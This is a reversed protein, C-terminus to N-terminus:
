SQQRLKALAATERAVVQDATIGLKAATQQPDLPLGGELGYRLTLLKADEEPLASLLDTIRQRMQFYATDEVAQEEEQPMEEPEPKLARNLIRVNEVTKAVAVTEEVSMHLAQAMEEPTPNRGLESLLREDVSRYDEAAARLKQGVGGDLASMLVAKEMYFRIWRDRFTEFRLGDGNFIETAYWLGMSGEQILDLLLVGKGTYEGALEVVRSLSLEVLQTRLAEPDEGTSNARSLADAVCCIDGCVPIAALEELYLRLPDTQELQEPRLGAKALQQELQLRKAAEGGPAAFDFDAFDLRINKEELQLFIEELQEEEAGECHLLLQAAPLVSDPMLLQVWSTDAAVEFTLEKENM